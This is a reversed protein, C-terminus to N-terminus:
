DDNVITGVGQAKTITANTPSSLNVAFTEDPEVLTDGNVSIPLADHLYVPNFALTATAAQYDGSAATATGDATAYAVTVTQASATPLSVTFVASATGSNGEVVSVNNIYISADDNLITGVGQAKTITANTPSSLNVAFTEDPEVLTDGNV